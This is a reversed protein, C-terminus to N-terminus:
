DRLAFTGAAHWQGAQRQQGNAQQQRASAVRQQYTVHGAPRHGYHVFTGDEHHSYVGEAVSASHTCFTSLAGLGISHV